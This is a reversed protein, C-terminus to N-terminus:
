IKYIKSNLSSNSDIVVPAVNAELLQKEFKTKHQLFIEQGQKKRYADMQPGAKHPDPKYTDLAAFQREVAQFLAIAEETPRRTFNEFMLRLAEFDNSVVLRYMFTQSLDIHEIARLNPGNTNKLLYKFAERKSSLAYRFVCESSLLNVQAGAKIVMDLIESSSQVALYIPPRMLKGEPIYGVNINAGQAILEAVVKKAECIVASCLLNYFPGKFTYEIDLGNKLQKKVYSVKDKDVIRKFVYSFVEEKDILGSYPKGDYLKNYDEETLYSDRFLVIPEVPSKSKTANKPPM